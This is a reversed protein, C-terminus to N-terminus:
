DCVPLSARLRNKAVKNLAARPLDEVIMVARPVKFRALELACRSLIREVLDDSPASAIVFLVPVEGYMRSVQAVAAVERVGEVRMAVSELEAASINEGGCKIVESLRGAFFIDGDLAQRALDGTFFWGDADFARATAEPDGFYAKFLSVGREGRVYLRGEAGAPVEGGQDDRLSLEYAPSAYGMSLYPHEAAPDSVIGQSITETMGWWGIISLGFHAEAAPHAIGLGWTKFQHDEPVPLSWLARLCFPVISARTCQWNLAAPWFRSASFRPQLVVLGGAWLTPLVMYTQANTHFFPLCCLYVDDSTLRQHQASVMAGWVANGHTWLVAKPRATSGSTFQISLETGPDAPRRELPEGQMLESFDAEPAGGESAGITWIPRDGMTRGVQDRHALDTVALSPAAHAVFYALEADTAATNTTVAISGLVGSGFWALLTEASNDAHLLLRDGPGLGAARLGGAVRRAEAWLAEYTWTQIPGDFPAWILALRDPFRRARDQLMWPIDRGAVTAQKSAASV